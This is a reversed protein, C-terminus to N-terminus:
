AKALSGTSNYWFVYDYAEQLTRFSVSGGVGHNDLRWLEYRDDPGAWDPPENKQVGFGHSKAFKELVKFTLM